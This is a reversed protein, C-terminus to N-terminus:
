PTTPCRPRCGPRPSRRTASRWTTLSCRWRLAALGVLALGLLALTDPEPITGNAGGNATAEIVLGAISFGPSVDLLSALSTAPTGAILEALSNFSALFVESGGAADLDSEFLLRYVDGEVTFGGLSFRASVDLQLTQSASHDGALFEGLSNFSLLFLESGGAADLDSEILVRYIGGDVAFGGISFGADINLQSAQSAAIDGALLDNLSNFSLVFLESGAGADRRSELLLRYAGGDVVFGGISFGADINLQSVQSAAPVGAILEGQSNFSVLYVESGESADQDSELLLRYPAAMVSTSLMLLAAAAWFVFHSVLRHGRDM